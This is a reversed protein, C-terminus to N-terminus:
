SLGMLIWETTKVRFPLLCVDMNVFKRTKINTPNIFM